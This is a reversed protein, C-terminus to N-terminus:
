HSGVTYCLSSLEINLPSRFPFSVWFVPFIHIHTCIYITSGSQQVSFVLVVSYLLSVGIFILNFFCVCLFGCHSISDCGGTHSYCFHCGIAFTSLSISFGANGCMVTPTYFPLRCNGLINFISKGHQQQLKTTLNHRVRQSGHVTARWAGRDMSNGLCSYQFPNGNGGGICRGLGPIM